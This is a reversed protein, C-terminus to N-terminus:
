ALSVLETPVSFIIKKQAEKHSHQWRSISGCWQVMMLQHGNRRNKNTKRRKKKEETPISCHEITQLSQLWPRTMAVDMYHIYIYVYNFWRWKSRKMQNQIYNKPGRRILDRFAPLFYTIRIDGNVCVFCLINWYM